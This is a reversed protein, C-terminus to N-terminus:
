MTTYTDLFSVLLSHHSGTLSSSYSFNPPYCILISFSINLLATSKKSYLYPFFLAPPTATKLTSLPSYKILIQGSHSLALASKHASVPAM